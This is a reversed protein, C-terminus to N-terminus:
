RWLLGCEKELKRMEKNVYKKSTTTSKNNKQRKIDKEMLCMLIPVYDTNKLNLIEGWLFMNNGGNICYWM